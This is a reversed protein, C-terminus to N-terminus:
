KIIKFIEEIDDKQQEIYEKIIEDTITGVSRCFYGVSWMHQGWYRKRLVPYEEQIMKSSRGKLSKVLQSVSISPPCSVLIHIHSKGVSGKIIKVGRSECGQRILERIRIAIKDNLVRYRYKTTWVIHFQIDYQTHGGRRM